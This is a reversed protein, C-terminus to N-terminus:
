VVTTLRMAVQEEIEDLMERYVTVMTASGSGYYGYTKPGGPDPDM